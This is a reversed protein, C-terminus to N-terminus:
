KAQPLQVRKLLFVRDGGGTVLNSQDVLIIRAGYADPISDGDHTVVLQNGDIHWTGDVGGTCLTCTGNSRYVDIHRSGQWSGTLQKALIKPDISAPYPHRNIEHEIAQGTPTVVKSDERAWTAKLLGILQNIYKERAAENNSFDVGQYQAKLSQLSAEEGLASGCVLLAFVAAGIFRSVLNWCIPPKRM